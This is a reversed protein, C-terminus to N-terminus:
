ARRWTLVGVRHPRPATATANQKPIMSPIGPVAQFRKNRFKSSYQRRFFPSPPHFRLQVAVYLM